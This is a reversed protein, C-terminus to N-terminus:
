LVNEWRYSLHLLKLCVQHSYMIESEGPRDKKQSDTGMFEYDAEGQLTAAGQKIHEM